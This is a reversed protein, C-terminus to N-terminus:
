IRICTGKGVRPMFASVARVKSPLWLVFAPRRTPIRWTGNLRLFQVSRCMWFRLALNSNLVGHLRPLLAAAGVRQRDRRQRESVSSPLQVFWLEQGPKLAPLASAEEVKTFDGDPEFRCCTTFCANEVTLIPMRTAKGRQRAHLLLGEQCAKWSERRPNPRRRRASARSTTATM